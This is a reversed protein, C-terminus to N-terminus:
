TIPETTRPTVFEAPDIGLANVRAEVARRTREAINRERNTDAVFKELRAKLEADNASMPAGDPYDAALDALMQQYNVLNLDYNHVEEERVRLADSLDRKLNDDTVFKPM